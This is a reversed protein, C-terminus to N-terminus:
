GGLRVIRTFQFISRTRSISNILFFMIITTISLIGVTSQKEKRKITLYNQKTKETVTVTVNQRLCKYVIGVIDSPVAVDETALACLNNGVRALSCPLTILKPTWIIIYVTFGRNVVM